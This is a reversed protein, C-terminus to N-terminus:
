LTLRSYFLGKEEEEDEEEEEEEDEGAGIWHSDASHDARADVSTICPVM